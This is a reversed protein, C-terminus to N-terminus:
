RSLTWSNTSRLATNAEFSKPSYLEINSLGKKLAFVHVNDNVLQLMDMDSTVLLTEIDKKAPRCPWRVWLTTPKTIMSSMCHGALLEATRASGSNTMFIQRRRNAALKTNQTCNWAAAFTPKPSIGPWRWMIRSSGSLLKWRWPPLALCVALQRAMKPALNPMAYYGRYFVSKGDIVVLRKKAETAM